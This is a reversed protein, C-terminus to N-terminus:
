IELSCTICFLHNDMRMQNDAPNSQFLNYVFYFILLLFNAAVNFAQFFFIKTPETVLYM